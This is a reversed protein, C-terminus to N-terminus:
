VDFIPFIVHAKASRNMNPEHVDINCFKQFYFLRGITKKVSLHYWVNITDITVYKDRTFFILVVAHLCRM